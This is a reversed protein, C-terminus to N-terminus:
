HFLGGICYLTIAIPNTNDNYSLGGFYCSIFIIVIVIVILYKYKILSGLM